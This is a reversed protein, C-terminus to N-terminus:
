VQITKLINESEHLLLEAEPMNGKSMLEAALSHNRDCYLQDTDCYKTNLCFALKSSHSAIYNLLM